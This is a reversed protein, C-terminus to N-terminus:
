EMKIIKENYVNGDVTVRIFYIGSPLDNAKISGSYSGASFGDDLALM